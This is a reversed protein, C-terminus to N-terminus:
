KSVPDNRVIMRRVFLIPVLLLILGGFSGGSETVVVVTDTQEFSKSELTLLSLDADSFGDLTAVLQNDFNDYLEILVEYDGSPFGTVLDSEVVFSDNSSDGYINFLSTTHYEEFVDSRALYLRAYVEAQNFVTDADFEITFTSYFGDYDNDINLSVTADYIWFDTDLAVARHEPSLPKALPAASQKAMHLALASTVTGTMAQPTPKKLEASTAIGRKSVEGLLQGQQYEKSSVQIHSSETQIATANTMWLSAALFTSSLLTTRAM